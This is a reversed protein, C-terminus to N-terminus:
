CRITWKAEARSGPKGTKMKKLKDGIKCFCLRHQNISFSCSITKSFSPTQIHKKGGELIISSKTLFLVRVKTPTNPRAALVGGDWM